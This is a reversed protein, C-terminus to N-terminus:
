VKVKKSVKRKMMVLLNEYNPLCACVFQYKSVAVKGGLVLRM